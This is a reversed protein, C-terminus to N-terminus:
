DSCSSSCFCYVAHVPKVTIGIDLAFVKGFVLYVFVNMNMEINMRYFVFFQHNKITILSTLILQHLKTINKTPIEYFNYM